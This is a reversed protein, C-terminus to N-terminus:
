RRRKFPKGVVGLVSGGARFGFAEMLLSAEAGLTRYPTSKVRIGVAGLTAYRLSPLFGRPSFVRGKTQGGPASEADTVRIAPESNADFLGFM